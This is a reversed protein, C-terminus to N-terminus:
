EVGKRCVCSLMCVTLSFIHFNIVIIYKEGQNPHQWATRKDNNDHFHPSFFYSSVKKESKRSPHLLFFLFPHTFTTKKVSKKRAVTETVEKKLWSIVASTQLYAKCIFRLTIANSNSNLKKMLIRKARFSFSM